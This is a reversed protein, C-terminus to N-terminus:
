DDLTTNHQTVGLQMRSFIVIMKLNPDYFNNLSKNIDSDVSSVLKKM